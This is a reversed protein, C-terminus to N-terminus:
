VKQLLLMCMDDPDSYYEVAEVQYYKLGGDHDLILHDTVKIGAKQITMFGKSGQEMLTLTYDRGCQHDSLDHDKFRHHITDGSFVSLGVRPFLHNLTFSNIFMFKGGNIGSALSGM